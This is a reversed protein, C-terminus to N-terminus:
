CHYIFSSYDDVTLSFVEFHPPFSRMCFNAMASFKSDSTSNPCLFYQHLGEFLPLATSLAFVSIQFSETQKLVCM